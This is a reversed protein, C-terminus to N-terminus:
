AKLEEKAATQGENIADAASRYAASRLNTTTRRLTANNYERTRNLTERQVHARGRRMTPYAVPLAKETPQEPAAVNVRGDGAAAAAEEEQRDDRGRMGTAVIDSLDETDAKLEAIRGEYFARQDKLRQEYLSCVEDHHVRTILPFRM